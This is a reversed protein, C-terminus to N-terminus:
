SSVKAQGARLVTAPNELAACAGHQYIVKRHPRARCIDLRNFAFIDDGDLTESRVVYEMRNLRSEDSVIRHLTPEAGRTHNQRSKIKKTAIRMGGALLDDNSHVIVQTTAAGLRADNFRNRGCGVRHSWPGRRSAEDDQKPVRDLLALRSNLSRM